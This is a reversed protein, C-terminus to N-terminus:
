LRFRGSHCAGRNQAVDMSVQARELCDDIVDTLLTHISDDTQAIHDSVTGLRITGADAATALLVLLSGLGLLPRLHPRGAVVRNM